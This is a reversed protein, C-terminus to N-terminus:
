PDISYKPSKDDGQLDEERLTQTAKPAKMAAMLTEIEDVRIPTGQLVNVAIMFCFLMNRLQRLL